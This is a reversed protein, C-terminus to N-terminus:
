SKDYELPHEAGIDFAFSEVTKQMCFVNEAFSFVTLFWRSNQRWRLQLCDFLKAKRCLSKSLNTKQMCFVTSLKAKSLFTSFWLNEVTKLKASFLVFIRKLYIDFIESKRGNEAKSFVHNRCNSKEEIDEAHLLGDFAKSEVITSFGIDFLKAKRRDEAFSFVYNRNVTKLKASFTKQMCFDHRFDSIKSRRFDKIKSM